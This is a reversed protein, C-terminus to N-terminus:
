AQKGQERFFEKAMQDDDVVLFYRTLGLLEILRLIKQTPRILLVQCGAATSAKFFEVLVGIASSSLFSCDSLDIATCPLKVTTRFLDQLKAIFEDPIPLLITGRLRLFLVGDTIDMSVAYREGTQVPPPMTSMLRNLDDQSISDM